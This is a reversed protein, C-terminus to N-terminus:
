GARGGLLSELAAASLKLYGAPLAFLGPDQPALALNALEMQIALRRGSPRTLTGDLRMVIGEGSVWAFGDARSGDAVTHDVRYKTTRVGNIRERGVADRRLRPDDFEAMLRPFAFAVYTRLAPLVLVGQKAKADLIIVEAIGQIQQEHRDHGPTHFVMGTYRRGDVIVTREASYAVAADGLLTARAAGPLAALLLDMLVAFRRLAAEAPM